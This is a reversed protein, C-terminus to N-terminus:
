GLRWRAQLLTEEVLHTLRRIDATLEGEPLLRLRFLDHLDGGLVADLYWRRRMSYDLTFAVPQPCTM